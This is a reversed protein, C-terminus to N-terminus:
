IIRTEFHRKSKNLQTELSQSEECWSFNEKLNKLLSECKNVQAIIPM